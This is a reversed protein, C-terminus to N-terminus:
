APSAIARTMFISGMSEPLCGRLAKAHDGPWRPQRCFEGDGLSRQSWHCQDFQDHGHGDCRRCYADWGFRTGVLLFSALLLSPTTTPHLRFHM